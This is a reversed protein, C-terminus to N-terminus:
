SSVRKVQVSQLLGIQLWHRTAHGTPNRQWDQTPEVFLGREDDGRISTARVSAINTPIPKAAPQIIGSIAMGYILQMM